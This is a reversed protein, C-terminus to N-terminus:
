AAGSDNTNQLQNKVASENNLGISEYLDVSNEEKILHLSIERKSM